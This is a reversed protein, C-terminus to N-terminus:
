SQDKLYQKTHLWAKAEADTGHRGFAAYEFARTLDKLGESSRDPIEDHYFLSLSSLRLPRYPETGSTGKLALSASLLLLIHDLPDSSTLSETLTTPILLPQSDAVRFSSHGVNSLSSRFFCLSAKNFAPNLKKPTNVVQDIIWLGIRERAPLFIDTWLQASFIAIVQPTLKGDNYHYLAGLLRAVTTNLPRPASLLDLFRNVNM